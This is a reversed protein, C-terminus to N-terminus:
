YRKINNGIYKTIWDVPKKHHKNIFERIIFEYDMILEPTIVPLPTIPQDVKQGERQYKSIHFAVDYQYLYTPETDKPLYMKHWPLRNQIIKDFGSQYKYKELLDNYRRTHIKSFMWRLWGEAIYKEIKFAWSMLGLECGVAMPSHMRSKRAFLIGNVLNELHMPRIYDDSDLNCWYPTRVESITYVMQKPYQDFPKRNIIRIRSDNCNLRLGDPHICTILLEFDEYTQNLVSQIANGMLKPHSGNTNMVITVLM